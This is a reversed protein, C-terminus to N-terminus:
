KGNSTEKQKLTTDAHSLDGNPTHLAKHAIDQMELAGGIPESHVPYAAIKELAAVLAAERQVRHKALAIV